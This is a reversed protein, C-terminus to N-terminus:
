YVMKIGISGAEEGQSTAGSGTTTAACRVLVSHRDEATLGGQHRPGHVRGVTGDLYQLHGGDGDGVAVLLHGRHVGLCLSLLPQYRIM